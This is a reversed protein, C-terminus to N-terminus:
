LFLSDELFINLLLAIGIVWLVKSHELLITRYFFPFLFVRTTAEDHDDSLPGRRGTPTM